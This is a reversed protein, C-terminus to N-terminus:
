GRHDKRGTVEKNSSTKAMKIIRWRTTRKKNRKRSYFLIESNIRMLQVDLLFDQKKCAWIKCTRIDKYIQTLFCVKFSIIERSSLHTVTNQMVCRKKEEFAEKGSM